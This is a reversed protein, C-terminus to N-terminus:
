PPSAHIRLTKIAFRLMEMCAEHDPDRVVVHGDSRRSVRWDHRPQGLPLAEAELLAPGLRARLEELGDVRVIRGEGTPASSCRARRPLAATPTATSAAGASRARGSATSTSTTPGACRTSSSPGPSRAAIEGFVVEGDPRKRFWEM